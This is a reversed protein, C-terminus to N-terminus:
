KESQCVFKKNKFDIHLIAGYGFNVVDIFPIIIYDQETTSFIVILCSNEPIRREKELRTIRLFSSFQNERLQDIRFVNKDIRKIEVKFNQRTTEIM